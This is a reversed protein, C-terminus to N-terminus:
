SGRIKKRDIKGTARVPMEAVIRFIDPVPLGEIALRTKCFSSLTESNFSQQGRRLSVSAVIRGNENKFVCALLVATHEHLVDEIQSAFYKKGGAEKVIDEERGLIYWYGAEDACGLDNSFFAGGRYAKRNLEPRQWYGNSITSSKIVIKGIKGPAVGDGAEDVAKMEVGTVARGVSSLKRDRSFLLTLPPLVEVMGYGRQIIPGFYDIAEKLKAKPM